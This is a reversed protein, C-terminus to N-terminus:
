LSSDVVFKLKKEAASFDERSLPAVNKELEKFREGLEEEEELKALDRVVEYFGLSVSKLEGMYELLEEAREAIKKTAYGRLLVETELNMDRFLRGIEEFFDRIDDASVMFLDESKKAVGLLEDFEKAEALFEGFSDKQLAEYTRGERDVMTESKPPGVYENSLDPKKNEPKEFDMYITHLM